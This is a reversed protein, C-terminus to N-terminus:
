TVLKHETAGFARLFPNTECFTTMLISRFNSNFIQLSLFEVRSIEPTLCQLDEAITAISLESHGSGRLAKSQQIQVLFSPTIFTGIKRFINSFIAAYGDILRNDTQKARATVYGTIRLLRKLM